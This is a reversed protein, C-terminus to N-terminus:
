GDTALGDILPQIHPAYKRWRELYNTHIGDRVQAASATYVARTSGKFDACGGEWDLGCHTVIKHAESEPAQVLDEYHVDLIADGFLSRWHDMLTRYAKFYRVLDAQDYSFHQGVTFMQRYNGLCTDVPDRLCHIIRAAPFVARIAGLYLFNSPMKDTVRPASADLADLCKLYQRAIAQLNKQTWKRAAEPYTHGDRAGHTQLADAFFSLEDGAYVQSHGALMQEVLTTGSRPMGVIFIPRRSDLGKAAFRELLKPQFTAAIKAMLREDLAVDYDLTERVLRNARELHGFAQDYDQNQEYVASLAFHLKAQDENRGALRELSQALSATDKAVDLQRLEALMKWAGGHDPDLALARRFQQTAEAMRGLARLTTGYVYLVDARDPALACARRQQEAADEARNIKNLAEGFNLHAEVNAPAHEVYERFHGVAASLDNENLAVVGLINHASGADPRLRLIGQALKRAQDFKNLSVAAIAMHILFEPSKQHRPYLKRYIAFAGASDGGNQLAAARHFDNEDSVNRTM